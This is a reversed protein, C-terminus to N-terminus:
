DKIKIKEVTSNKGPAITIGKTALPNIKKPRCLIIEVINVDLSRVSKIVNENNRPEIILIIKFIRNNGLNPIRPAAIDERM